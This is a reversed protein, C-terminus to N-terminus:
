QTQELQALTTEGSDFITAGSAVDYIYFHVTEFSAYDLRANYVTKAGTVFSFTMTNYINASNRDRSPVNLTGRDLTFTSALPQAKTQGFNYLLTRLAGLQDDTIGYDLLKDFGAFADEDADGTTIPTPSPTPTATPKKSSGNSLTAIVILIVVTAGIFIYRYKGTLLSLMTQM